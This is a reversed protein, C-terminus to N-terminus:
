KEAIKEGNPNAPPLSQIYNYVAEIETDSLASLGAFPMFQGDLAKGEPTKGTRFTQIFQGLTWNGPHGSKSIDPPPPSVPDPSKGGGLNKGHCNNCGSFNVVYEGYEKSSSIPPATINKAKEHDIINYAFLNGFLGAGAM